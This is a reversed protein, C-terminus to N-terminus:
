SLHDKLSIPLHPKQRKQWLQQHNAMFVGSPLRVSLYKGALIASFPLLIWLFLPM